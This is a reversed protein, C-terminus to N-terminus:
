DCPFSGVETTKNRRKANPDKWRKSPRIAWERKRFLKVQVVPTGDQEALWCAHRAIGSRLAKRSDRFASLMLKQKRDYRWRWYGPELEAFLPELQITDGDKTKGEILMWSTSGPPPAFMGWNQWFCLTAQMYRLKRYVAAWQPDDRNHSAYGVALYCTVFVSMVVRYLWHKM